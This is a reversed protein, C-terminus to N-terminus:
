EGYAVDIWDSGLRAMYNDMDDRALQEGDQWLLLSVYVNVIYSEAQHLETALPTAQGAVVTWRWSGEVRYRQKGKEFLSTDSGEELHTVQVNSSDVRIWRGKYTYWGDTSWGPPLQVGGALVEPPLEATHKIPEPPMPKAPLAKPQSPGTTEPAATGGGKSLKAHRRRRKAAVVVGITLPLAIAAAITLAITTPTLNKRRRKM